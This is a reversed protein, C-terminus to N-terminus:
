RLERKAGAARWCLLPRAGPRPPVAAEDVVVVVVTCPRECAASEAALTGLTADPAAPLDLQVGRYGYYHTTHRLGERVAKARRSTAAAYSM